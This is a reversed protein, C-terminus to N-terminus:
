MKTQGIYGMNFYTGTFNASSSNTKDTFCNGGNKSNVLSTTFNIYWGFFAIGRADQLQVETRYISILGMVLKM